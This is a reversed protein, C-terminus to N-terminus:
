VGSGLDLFVTLCVVFTQQKQQIYVPFDKKQYQKKKM